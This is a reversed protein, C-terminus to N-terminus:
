PGRRANLQFGVGSNMRETFSDLTSRAQAFSGGFIALAGTLLLPFLLWQGGLYPGTLAPMAFYLILLELVFNFVWLRLAWRAVVDLAPRKGRMAIYTFAVLLAVVISAGLAALWIIIMATEGIRPASPLTAPASAACHERPTTSGCRMSYEVCSFATHYPRM